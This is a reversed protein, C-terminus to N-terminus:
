DKSLHHLFADYARSGAAFSSSVFRWAFGAALFPLSLIVDILLGVIKV